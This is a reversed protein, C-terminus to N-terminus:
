SPSQARFPASLSPTRGPLAPAPPPMPHALAPRTPSCYPTFDQYEHPAKSAVRCWSHYPSICICHMSKVPWNITRLHKISGDRVGAEILCRRSVCAASVGGCCAGEQQGQGYGPTSHASPGALVSIGTDPSVNRPIEGDYLKLKRPLKYNAILSRLETRLESLSLSPRSTVV